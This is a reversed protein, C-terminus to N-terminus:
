VVEQLGEQQRFKRYNLVGKSLGDKIEERSRQCRM